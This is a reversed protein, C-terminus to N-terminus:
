SPARGNSPYSSGNRRLFWGILILLLLPTRTYCAYSLPSQENKISTKQSFVHVGLPTYSSDHTESRLKFPTPRFSLRTLLEKFETGPVDYCSKRHHQDLILCACIRHLAPSRAVFVYSLSMRFGLSASLAAATCCISPVYTYSWVLRVKSQRIPPSLATYLVTSM